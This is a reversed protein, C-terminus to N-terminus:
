LVGIRMTGRVVKENNQNYMTVKMEFVRFREDLSIVEGEVRIIDGIFVPKIFKYSVERILSNEGPLYVGALTSSLSATLMGYAVRSPYGKDKAFISDSHLPNTDGTIIKFSDMMDDTLQVCFSEKMGVYLDSFTYRNM